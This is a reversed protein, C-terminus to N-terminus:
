GFKRRSTAFIVSSDSSRLSCNEFAASTKKQREKIAWRKPVQAGVALTHTHTGAAVDRVQRRADSPFLTPLSCRTGGRRQTFATSTPPKVLIFLWSMFNLCAAAVITQTWVM